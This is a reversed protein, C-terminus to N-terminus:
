TGFFGPGAQMITSAVIDRDPAPSYGRFGILAVNNYRKSRPKNEFESDRRLYMLLSGDKVEFKGASFEPGPDVMGSGNIVRTEWADSLVSEFSDAADPPNDLITREAANQRLRSVELKAGLLGLIAQYNIAIFVFLFLTPILVIPKM